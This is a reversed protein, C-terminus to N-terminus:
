AGSVSARLARKRLAIEQAAERRLQRVYRGVEAATTGGDRLLGVEAQRRVLMLAFSRPPLSGNHKHPRAALVRITLRASPRPM